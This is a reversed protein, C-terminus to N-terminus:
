GESNGNEGGKREYWPLYVQETKKCHEKFGEPLPSVQFFGVGGNTGDEAITHECDECLPAGCVFQGTEDCEHTAQAGCSVCKEKRHEECFGSEDAEKKCQGMWAEIFKCQGM